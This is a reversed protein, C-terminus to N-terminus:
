TSYETEDDEMEDDDDKDDEEEEGVDTDKNRFIFHICLFFCWDFSQFFWSIQAVVKCNCQTLNETLLEYTQRVFSQLKLPIVKFNM